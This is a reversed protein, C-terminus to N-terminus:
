DLWGHWGMLVMGSRRPGPECGVWSVGHMAAELCSLQMLLEDAEAICPPDDLARADMGLQRNSCGTNEPHSCAAHSALRLSIKGLSVHM